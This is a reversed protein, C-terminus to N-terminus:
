ISEKRIQRTVDKGRGDHTRRRAVNALASADASAYSSNASQASKDTAPIQLLQSARLASALIKNQGVVIATALSSPQQWGIRAVAPM